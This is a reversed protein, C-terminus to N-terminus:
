SLWPQKLKWKVDGDLSNVQNLNYIEEANM